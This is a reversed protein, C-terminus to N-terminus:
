VNGGIKISKLVEDAITSVLNQSKEIDHLLKRFDNEKAKYVESSIALKFLGGLRGLDANAKLLALCAKADVTSKVQYNLCVNKVYTSVSLNCEKAKEKLFAYEENTLYTKVQNKNSPM